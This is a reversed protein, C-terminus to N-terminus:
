KVQQAVAAALNGGASDGSVCVRQPDISYRELVQSSLFARSAALADHYQDPFVAEPALRYSRLCPPLRILEFVLRRSPTECTLTRDVLM